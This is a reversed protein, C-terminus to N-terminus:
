LPRWEPATEDRRRSPRPLPPGPWPPAASEGYRLRVKGPLEHPEAIDPRADPALPRDPSLIM